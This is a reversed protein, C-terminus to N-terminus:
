FQVVPKDFRFDITKPILGKIRFGSMLTQLTDLIPLIDGKQTIFIDSQQTQVRLSLSDNKTIKYITLFSATGNIVAVSQKVSEDRITQGMRVLAVDIEIIPNNVDGVVDTIVADEDIGIIAAKTKLRAIPQRKHVILELTSPFHKKIDISKVLPNDEQIQKIVAASPFLLTNGVFQKKNVEVIATDGSVVIDKITFSRLIFRVFFISGIICSVCVFGLIIKRM